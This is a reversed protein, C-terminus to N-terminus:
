KGAELFDFHDSKQKAFVWAESWQWLDNRVEIDVYRLFPSEDENLRQMAEVTFKRFQKSYLGSSHNFRGAGKMLNPGFLENGCPFAQSRTTRIGDQM